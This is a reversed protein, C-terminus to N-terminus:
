KTPALEEEFLSEFTVGNRQMGVLKMRDRQRMALVDEALPPREFLEVAEELSLDKSRKMMPDLEMLRKFREAHNPGNALVFTDLFVAYMLRQKRYEVSGRDPMEPRDDELLELYGRIIDDVDRMELARDILEYQM